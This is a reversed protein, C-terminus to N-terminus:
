AAPSEAERRFIEAIDGRWDWNAALRQRGMPRLLSDFREDSKRCRRALETRAPM